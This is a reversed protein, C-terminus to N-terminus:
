IKEAPNERSQRVFDEGAGKKLLCLRHIDDIYEEKMGHSIWDLILGFCFCKYYRIILERDGASVPTETLLTDVYAQAVHECIRWLSSIYIERNESRYIHMVAQKNDLAFKMAASLCEDISNLSPHEEMVRQAEGICLEELLETISRYHYYFTNRNVGCLDTIDKVTIKNLPRENLLDVFAKQIVRKTLATNAM